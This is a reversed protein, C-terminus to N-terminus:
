SLKASLVQSSAYESVEVIQYVDGLAQELQKALELQELPFSKWQECSVWCIMLVVESLNEPHIWVKGLFSSYNSLAATWIEAKQIYQERLELPVKKLWEIVM